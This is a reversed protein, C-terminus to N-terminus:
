KREDHLILSASCIADLLIIAFHQATREVGADCWADGPLRLAVRSGPKAGTSRFAQTLRLVLTDSPELDVTPVGPAPAQDAGLIQLFMTSDEPAVNLSEASTVKSNPNTAMALNSMRAAVLRPLDETGFLCLFNLELAESARAFGMNVVPTHANKERWSHALNNIARFTMSGAIGDDPLGMNLQFRRLAEETHAGFMGDINGTSFGLASLASQLVEVDHGHFFPVRLYLNRDGMQFGADVLRSWVQQDVYDIPELGHDSCFSKVALVTDADFTQTVQNENLYGLDALRRQVDAVAAGRDHPKIAEM